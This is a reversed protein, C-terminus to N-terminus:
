TQAASSQWRPEYLLRISGHIIDQSIDVLM